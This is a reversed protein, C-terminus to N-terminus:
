QQTSSFRYAIEAPSSEGVYVKHFYSCIHNQYILELCSVEQGAPRLDLDQGKLSLVFSGNGADQFTHETVASPNDKLLSLIAIQEPLTEVAEEYLGYAIDLDAQIESYDVGEKDAGNRSVFYDGVATSYEKQNHLGNLTESYTFSFPSKVYDAQTRSDQAGHIIRADLHYEEPYATEGDKIATDAEGSLISWAETLYADPNASSSPVNTGSKPWLLFILIASALIILFGSLFAALSKRKLKRQQKEKKEKKKEPAEEM